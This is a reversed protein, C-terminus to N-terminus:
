RVGPFYVRSLRKVKVNVSMEGGLTSALGQVAAGVSSGGFIFLVRSM